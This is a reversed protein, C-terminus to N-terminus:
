FFALIVHNMTAGNLVDLYRFYILKGDACCDKQLASSFHLAQAPGLSEMM